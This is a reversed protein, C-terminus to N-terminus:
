FGIANRLEKLELSLFKNSLNCESHTKNIHSFLWLVTERDQIDVKITIFAALSNSIKAAIVRFTGFLVNGTEDIIIPYIFELNDMVKALKSITKIDCKKVVEFDLHLEDLDVIGMNLEDDFAEQSVMNIGKQSTTAKKKNNKKSKDM